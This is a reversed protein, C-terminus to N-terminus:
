DFIPINLLNSKIIIKQEWKTIYISNFYNFCNSIINEITTFFIDRINKIFNVKINYSILKILSCITMIGPKITM